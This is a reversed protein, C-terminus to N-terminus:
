CCKITLEPLYLTNLLKAKTKDRKKQKQKENKELTTTEGSHYFCNDHYNKGAFFFM